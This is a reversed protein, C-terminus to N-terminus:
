TANVRLARAQRSVVLVVRGVGAEAVMAGTRTGEVAGALAQAVSALEELGFCRLQAVVRSIRAFFVAPRAGRVVAELQQGTLAKLKLEILRNAHAHLATAIRGVDTGGAVLDTLARDAGDVEGGFVLDVFDDLIEEGGASCVAVIDAEAVESQGACYSILKDVEREAAGLDNRLIEVLHALAARGIQLGNAELSRQVVMATEEESAEYVPIIAAAASGEFLTRLGSGKSLPGTEAVILNGPGPEKLLPDVARAFAADAGSVWVIRPGGFMSIAAYEEALRGSSGALAAEDLRGVVFPDDLSGAFHKV